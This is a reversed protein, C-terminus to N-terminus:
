GKWVGGEKISRRGCRVWGWKAESDGGVPVGEVPVRRWFGVVLDREARMEEWYGWKEMEGMVWGGREDDRKVCCELLRRLLAQRPRYRGLQVMENLYQFADDLSQQEPTEEAEDPAPPYPYPPFRSHFPARTAPYPIPVPAEVFQTPLLRSAHNLCIQILYEYTSINPLIPPSHHHAMESIIYMAFEKKLSEPNRRGQEEDEEVEQETRQPDRRSPMACGFLIYNYTRQNPKAGLDNYLKCVAWAKKLGTSGLRVYAAIIADLAAPDVERPNVGNNASTIRGKPEIPGGTMRGGELWARVEGVATDLREEGWKRFCAVLAKVTSSSVPVRASRMLQLVSLAKSLNPTHTRTPILYMELLAQYHSELFAVERGALLRLAQAALSPISHRVAVDLLLHLLGDDPPFLDQTLIYRWSWLTAEKHLAKAAATCLEYWARNGMEGGGEVDEGREFRIRVDEKGVVLWRWAEEVEGARALEVIVEEWAERSLGRGENVRMEVLELGTEFQGDKFLGKLVWEWGEDNVAFWRAKMERLVQARKLYDPSSALLRLLHHFVPSTARIGRAQMENYLSWAVEQMLSGPFLSCAEILLAYTAASKLLEPNAQVVRLAAQFVAPYHKNLIADIM